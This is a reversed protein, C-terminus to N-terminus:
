TGIRDGITKFMAVFRSYWWRAQYDLGGQWAHIDGANTYINSNDTTSGLADGITRTGYMMSGAPDTICPIYCTLLDGPNAAMYTNYAALTDQELIYKGSGPTINNTSGANVGVLLIIKNPGLGARVQTLHSVITSQLTASVYGADGDNYADGVVYVDPQQAIVDAIRENYNTTTLLAPGVDTFGTGTRAADVFDDCGLMIALQSWVSGNVVSAGSSADLSCGVMMMKWRNPNKPAWVTHRPKVYVGPFYLGLSHWVRILREKSNEFTLVLGGTSGRMNGKIVARNDVTAAFKYFNNIGFDTSGFAIQDADTHLAICGVLNGKSTNQLTSVIPSVTYAPLEVGNTSGIPKLTPVGGSFFFTKDQSAVTAAYRKTLTANYTAFAQFAYTMAGERPDVDTAKGRYVWNQSGDSQQVPSTGSPGTAGTASNDLLAQYNNGALQRIDGNYTATTAAWAEPALLPPCVVSNNDKVDSITTKIKTLLKVAEAYSNLPAVIVGGISVKDGVWYIQNKKPVMPFVDTIVSTVNRPSINLPM